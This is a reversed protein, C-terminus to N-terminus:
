RLLRAAFLWPMVSAQGLIMVFASATVIQRSFFDEIIIPSPRWTYLKAQWSVSSPCYLLAALVLCSLLKRGIAASPMKM